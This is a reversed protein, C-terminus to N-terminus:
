TPLSVFSFCINPSGWEYKSLHLLRAFPPSPRCDQCSLSPILGYLRTQPHRHVKRLDVQKVKRCGPCYGCDRRRDHTVLEAQARSGERWRRTGDSSRRKPSRGTHRTTTSRAKVSKGSSKM